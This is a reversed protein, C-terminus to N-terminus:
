IIIKIFIFIVQGQQDQKQGYRTTVIKPKNYKYYSRKM